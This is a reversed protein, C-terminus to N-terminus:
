FVLTCIKKNTKYADMWFKLLVGNDILMGIRGEAASNQPLAVPVYLMVRYSYM